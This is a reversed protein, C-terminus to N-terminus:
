GGIEVSIGLQSLTRQLEEMNDKTPPEIDLKYEQGLRFYKPRGFDHYPLLHIEAIGLERAFSAIQSLHELSDNLGPIVPVRIVIDVGTAAIKRLNALILMNEVGTLQKHAENDLHKIDFLVTDLYPLCREIKEFPAFGCTEIATDIGHEKCKQLLAYLFDAQAFPEGGSFTVGGGSSEYFVLDGQIEELAEMVTYQKGIEQLCEAYCIKTCRGCLTCETRNIVVGTPTITIANVPCSRVCKECRFCRNQLITIENNFSQSEPNACWVCHLPCGKFFVLTRIGRGDHISYRQINFINGKLTSPPIAKGQKM